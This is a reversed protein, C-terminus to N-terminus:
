VQDGADADGAGRLAAKDVKGTATHPVARLVLRRPIKYDSLRTLCHRRLEDLDLHRGPVLEVVAVVTEGYLAHPEGVVACNAVEDLAAIVQEVEACYVNRGGTVIMDKLRDVITLAGDADVRVVDGTRLWDGDLARATADPDNWYGCMVSPARVQLEGIGGGSAAAVAHGDTDIVRIESGPVAQHGSADPRAAVQESTSYIGGPGAETQGAFSLLNAQPLLHRLRAIADVPMAAGGFIVTRLSDLDAAAFASDRLLLQYMTPVGFFVSVRHRDIARIVEAADFRPLIEVAAGALAAPLLQVGLAAAHHLPAAILVRDEASLSAAAAVAQAGALTRRHDFLAGKPRGTTGSTYLILSPDAATRAPDATVRTPHEITRVPDATARTPNDTTGEAVGDRAVDGTALVSRDLHAPLAVGEDAVILAPDCDALLYALETAASAPNLPVVAAGARLAGYLAIVFGASNGALLALRDGGGLGRARLLAAASDIETDLEAYSYRRGAAVLATAEPRTGAQQRIADDILPGDALAGDILAADIPATDLPATDLPATDRPATDMPATDRPATDISADRHALSAPTADMRAM